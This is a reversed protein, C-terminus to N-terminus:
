RTGNRFLDLKRWECCCRIACRWSNGGASRRSKLYHEKNRLRRHRNVCRRKALNSQDFSVVRDIPVFIGSFSLKQLNLSRMWIGTERISIIANLTQGGCVFDDVSLEGPCQKNKTQSFQNSANFYGNLIQEADSRERVKNWAHFCFPPKLRLM